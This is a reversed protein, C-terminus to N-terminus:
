VCSFEKWWSGTGTIMSPLPVPACPAARLPEHLGLERYMLRRLLEGAMGPRSTMTAAISDQWSRDEAMVAHVQGLLPRDDRLVSAHRRLHETPPDLRLESVPPAAILTPVGIAAGYQTVPGYDGVVLNAAVLAARWGDDPRVLLAGADLCDAFWTRIQWEGRVSWVGPDVTVAVRFRDAPLDAVLSTVLEPRGGVTAGPQSTSTVVVLRQHRSVGLVHRYRARFPISALLRDYCIDGVVVAGSTDDDTHVGAGDAFLTEAVDQRLLLARRGLEDLGDPSAALVLDFQERRAAHWGVVACGRARLTDAVGEHGGPVVTFVTTIRHDAEFLSLADMLSTGAATRPMVVLVTRRGSHSVRHSARRTASSNFWHETM